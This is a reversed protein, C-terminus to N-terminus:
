ARQKSLVREDNLAEMNENEGNFTQKMRKKREDETYETMNEVEDENVKTEVVRHDLRMEEWSNRELAKLKEEVEDDLNDKLESQKMDEKIKKAAPSSMDRHKLEIHKKLDGVSNFVITCENCFIETDEEMHEILDTETVFLKESADCDKGDEKHVRKMHTKFGQATKFLKDCIQCKNNKEQSPKNDAKVVKKRYKDFSDGEISGDIIGDLLFKIVKIALTKVHAFDGGSVKQIMITAGGKKNLEYIKLNVRGSLGLKSKVEVNIPKNKPVDNISISIGNILFKEGKKQFLDKLMRNAEIYEHDNGKITIGTKNEISAKTPVIELEYGECVFDEMVLDMAKTLVTKKVTM